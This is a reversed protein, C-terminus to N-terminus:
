KSREKRYFSQKFHIFGAAEAAALSGKNHYHISLQIYEITKRNALLFDSSEKVMKMGVTENSNDRIGRYSKELSFHMDLFSVKAKVMEYFGLFGILEDNENAVVYTKDLRESLHGLFDDGFEELVLEDMEFLEILKQHEPHNINLNYFKFNDTKFM